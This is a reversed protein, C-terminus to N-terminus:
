ILLPFIRDGAWEVTVPSGLLWSSLAGPHSISPSCELHIFPHVPFSFRPPFVSNQTGRASARKGSPTGPTPYPLRKPVRGLGTLIAPPLFCRPVQKDRPKPNTLSLHIPIRDKLGQCPLEGGRLLRWLNATNQTPTLQNPYKDMPLSTTVPSSSSLFLAFPPAVPPSERLLFSLALDGGGM